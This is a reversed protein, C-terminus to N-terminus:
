CHMKSLIGVKERKGNGVSKVDAQVTLIHEFCPETPRQGHLTTAELPCLGYLVFLIKTM